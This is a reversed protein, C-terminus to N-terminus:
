LSRRGTGTPVPSPRRCLRQGEWAWRSRRIEEDVMHVARGRPPRNKKTNSQPRLPGASAESAWSRSEPVAAAVSVAVAAAAPEADAPLAPGPVTVPDPCPQRGPDRYRVSTTHPVSPKGVGAQRRTRREDRRREPEGGQPPTLRNDDETSRPWRRADRRSARHSHRVEGDRWERPLGGQSHAWAHEFRRRCM